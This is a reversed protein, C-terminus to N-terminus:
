VAFEPDVRSRMESMNGEATDRVKKALDKDDIFNCTLLCCNYCYDAWEYLKQSQYIASAKLFYLALNDPVAPAITEEPNEFYQLLKLRLDAQAPRYTRYFLYEDEMMERQIADKLIMWLTQVNREEPDPSCATEEFEILKKQFYESPTRLREENRRIWAAVKGLSYVDGASERQTSPDQFVSIDRLEDSSPWFGALIAKGHDDMWLSSPQICGHVMHQSRLELIGKLGCILAKLCALLSSPGRLHQTLPLGPWESIVVTENGEHSLNYIDPLHQGEGIKFDNLFPVFRREGQRDEDQRRQMLLLTGDKRQCKWCDPAVGELLTYEAEM